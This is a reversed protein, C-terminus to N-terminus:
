VLFGIVLVHSLKIIIIHEMSAVPNFSTVLSYRHTKHKESLLVKLSAETTTQSSFYALLM